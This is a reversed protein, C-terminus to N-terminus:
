LNTQVFQKIVLKMFQTGKCYSQITHITLKCDFQLVWKGFSSAEVKALSQVKTVFNM